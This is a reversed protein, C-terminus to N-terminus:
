AMEERKCSFSLIFEAVVKAILQKYRKVEQAVLEKYEEYSAEEGIKDAIRLKAIHTCRKILAAMICERTIREGESDACRKMCWMVSRIDKEDEDMEKHNHEEEIWFELVDRYM